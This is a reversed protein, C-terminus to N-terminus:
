PFKDKHSSIRVHHRTLSTHFVRLRKEYFDVARAVLTCDAPSSYRDTGMCGRNQAACCTKIASDESSAVPMIVQESATRKM